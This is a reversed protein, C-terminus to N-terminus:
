PQKQKNRIVRVTAGPSMILPIANWDAYRATLEKEKSPDLAATKMDEFYQRFSDMIELGGIAGHGPVIKQIDLQKPLANMIAIYGEPDASGFLAPAQRNLIVDGTFLMKRRHLYVMVDSQTHSIREMTLVTATDDGMPIDMTGKLWMTPLGEAGDEKVWQERSYRGGAIITQGTYHSNGGTHDTHIHSNVVVIPKNGALEKVTKYLEDAAKDMKTDIVLVLSDSVLIGSNGGGGLIITLNKDYPIVSTAKMRSMFPRLYIFYVSGAILVLLLVIVGIVKLVKKLTKM